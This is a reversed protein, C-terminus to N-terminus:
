NLEGWGMQVYKLYIFVIKLDDFIEFCSVDLKFAM